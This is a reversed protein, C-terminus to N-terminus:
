ESIKKKYAEPDLKKLEELGGNKHLESFSLKVLESVRTKSDGSLTSQATPSSAKKALLKEVSEYNSTALAVYEEKEDATIKRDDVAKQVLQEVKAKQASLKVENLEKEKDTLKKTLDLKDASLQINENAVKQIAALISTENADNASLKLVALLGSPNTIEIKNMNNNKSSLKPLNLDEGSQSLQVRKGNNASLSVYSLCDFNIGREVISVEDLISTYLTPYLQGDKLYDPNDTWEKAIFGSSAMNIIGKEYKGHLEVAFTDDPDFEPLGTLDGNEEVRLDVLKGIPLSSRGIKEHEFKLIPSKLYFSLDIGATRVWFGLRNVSENSIVIRKTGRLM